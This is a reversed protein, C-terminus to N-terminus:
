PQLLAQLTLDKKILRIIEDPHSVHPYHGTAEMQKLTSGPLHRHMYRGVEVPAIQDRNCQLILSPVTVKPLDERNDAYFTAEAFRRAIAPDTACFSEELEQALEPREPNRMITPALFHAWGLFSQDMLDFLEELYKRKFGGFYDPLDNLYRPSPGVLILRRFREPERISALLGIMAGVSHGVFIAEKLNLTEVIDLVDHVYGELTSYRDPDYAQRDSQGSGVYDFLIVRYDQEFAPAVFRWMNQDCGFGPAFLIPTAGHGSLKVNNRRLISEHM